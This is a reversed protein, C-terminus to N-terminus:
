APTVVKCTMGQCRFVLSSRGGFDNVYQLVPAEGLAAPSVNLEVDARPAVMVPTFDKLPEEGKGPSAEIITIFYGTPNHLRYRGGKRVLQVQQQIPSAYQASSIQLGVPRYFLKIKTQLAIQLTNPQNSRPPIERLNFYFLTEKDQSLLNVSSLSQIKIQSKDGAEIRQVPPLVTLPSNVKEGQENEIWGQALYPLRSNENAITLSVSPNGADLIIRTRDLSLAAQSWSSFLLTAAALTNLMGKSTSQKM